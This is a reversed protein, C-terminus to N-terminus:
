SCRKNVGKSDRSGFISDPLDYYDLLDRLIKDNRGAGINQDMLQPNNDIIIPLFKRQRFNTISVVETGNKIGMVKLWLDDAKLAKEKIMKKNLVEKHLSNPPYLVGGVGIQLFKHSKNIGNETEVWENYPCVTRNEVKITRTITSCISAPYKKHYAKLDEILYSPYIVDDDITIINAKPYKALTYFYKKHPMLNDDCFEIHVWKELRLLSKPLSAKGKFEGKYLWLIVADPKEKQRLISEIALWVKNIRAPFTTLSVIYRSSDNLNNTKKLNRTFFFSSVYYYLPLFINVLRIFLRNYWWDIKKNKFRVNYLSYLDM